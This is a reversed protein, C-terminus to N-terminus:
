NERERSSFFFDGGKTTLGPGGRGRGQRALERQEGNEGKSRKRLSM